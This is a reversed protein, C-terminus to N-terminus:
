CTGFCGGFLGFDQLLRIGVNEFYFLSFIGIESVVVFHQGHWLYIFLSWVIVINRFVLPFICLSSTQHTWSRLIFNSNLLLIWGVFQRLFLLNRKQYRTRIFKSLNLIIHRKLQHTLGNKIECRIQIKISRVFLNINVVKPVARVFYSQALYEVELLM